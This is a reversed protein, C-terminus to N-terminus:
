CVNRRLPVNTFLSEVDFLFFYTVMKLYNKLYKWMKPKKDTFYLNSLYTQYFSLYAMPLHIKHISLQVKKSNQQIM